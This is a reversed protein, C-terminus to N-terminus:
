FQEGSPRELTMLAQVPRTFAATVVMAYTPEDMLSSGRLVAVPLPFRVGMAMRVFEQHNEPLKHGKLDDREIELARQEGARLAM